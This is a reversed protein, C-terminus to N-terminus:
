DAQASARWREYLRREPSGRALASLLKEPPNEYLRGNNNMLELTLRLRLFPAFRRFYIHAAAQAIKQPPHASSTVFFRADRFVALPEIGILQQMPDRTELYQHTALFVLWGWPRERTMSPDVVLNDDDAAALAGVLQEVQERTPTM